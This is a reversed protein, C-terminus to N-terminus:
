LFTLVYHHWIEVPRLLVVFELAFTVWLVSWSIEAKVQWLWHKWIVVIVVFHTKGPTRCKSYFRSKSCPCKSKRLESLWGQLRLLQREQKLIKGKWWRELGEIAWSWWSAPWAKMRCLIGITLNTPSNSM